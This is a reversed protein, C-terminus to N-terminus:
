SNRWYHKDNVEKRKARLSLKDKLKDAKHKEYKVKQLQKFSQKYQAFEADSLDENGYRVKQYLRMVIAKHEDAGELHGFWEEITKSPTRAMVTQMLKKEFNFFLRRTKNVPPKSNNSRFLPKQDKENVFEERTFFGSLTAPLMGNKGKYIVYLIFTLLAAGILVYLIYQPDFNSIVPDVDTSPLDVNDDQMSDPPVNSEDKEEEIKEEDKLPILSYLWMLIPYLVSFFLWGGFILIKHIIYRFAPLFAVALISTGILTLLITLQWSSAKKNAHVQLHQIMKKVVILLFQVFIFLVFWDSYLYSAFIFYQGLAVITTLVLLPGDKDDDLSQLSSFLRFSIVLALAAGIPFPYGVILAVLILGILSVASFVYPMYEHDWKHLVFYIITGSLAVLFFPFVEPLANKEALTYFALLQYIFLFEMTFHVFAYKKM